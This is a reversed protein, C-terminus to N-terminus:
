GAHVGLARRPEGLVADQELIAQYVRHMARGPELGLDSVLRRRAGHFVDLAETQRGEQYLALMLLESLREREPYEVSKERLEAISVRKQRLHLRAETLDEYATVRREELHAAQIRCHMGECSNVADQLAPGRWLALARELVVVADAPCRGLLDAGAEALALFRHADVAEAPVDLLYGNAVTRVLEDEGTVSQLLKRLRGINAQLANRANAIRQEAWLEDILRDFTVVSGPATALLTLVAGVRKSAVAWRRNGVSLSLSGLLLIEM